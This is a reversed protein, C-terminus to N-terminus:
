IVKLNVCLAIDRIYDNVSNTDKTAQKELKKKHSYASTKYKNEKGKHCYKYCGRNHTYDGVYNPYIRCGGKIASKIDANPHIDKRKNAHIGM